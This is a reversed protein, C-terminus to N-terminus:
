LNILWTRYSNFDKQILLCMSPLNIEITNNLEFYEKILEKAIKTTYERKALKLKNRTFKILKMSAVQKETKNFYGYRIGDGFM